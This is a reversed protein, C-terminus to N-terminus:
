QQEVECEEEIDEITLVEMQAILHSAVPITLWLFIVVLVTKAAVFSFGQLLVVGALTSLIGLADGIAAAHMRNLVYDFRFLGIAATVFVFLGFLILILGITTCAMEIM